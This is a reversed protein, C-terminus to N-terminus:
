LLLLKNFLSMPKLWAQISMCTREAYISLINRDLSMFLSRLTELNYCDDLRGKISEKEKTVIKRRLLFAFNNQFLIQM